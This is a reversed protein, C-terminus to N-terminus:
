VDMNEEYSEKLQEEYSIKARKEQVTLHEDKGWWSKRRLNGCFACSCQKRTSVMKKAYPNNNKFDEIYDHDEYQSYIKLVRLAKIVGPRRRCPRM